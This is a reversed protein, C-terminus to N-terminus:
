VSMMTLISGFAAQDTEITELEVLDWHAYRQQYSGTGQRHSTEGCATLFTGALPCASAEVVSSLAHPISQIRRATGDFGRSALHIARQPVSKRSRSVATEDYGAKNARSM